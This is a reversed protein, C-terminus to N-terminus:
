IRCCLWHLLIAFFACLKQAFLAITERFITYCFGLCTPPLLRYIYTNLVNHANLEFLLFVNRVTFHTDIAVKSVAKLLIKLAVKM